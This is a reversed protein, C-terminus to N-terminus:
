ELGLDDADQQSALLGDQDSVPNNELHQRAEEAIQAASEDRDAQETAWSRGPHLVDWRPRKGARRGAGPDNNGFGEVSANWVPNFAAIMLSEGLPIWIDEVVLFRCWFDEPNLNRAPPKLASHYDFVQQISARHKALREFLSTGKLGATGAGGGKRGGKPIAKGVYIPQKFNGNSNREALLAYPPFDGTYYLAYIGAGAFSELTGLPVVDQQLLANAVSAGLNNRDLPNYPKVGPM